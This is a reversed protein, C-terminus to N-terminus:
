EIQKEHQKMFRQYACWSIGAARVADREARVAIQILM